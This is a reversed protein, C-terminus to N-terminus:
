IAATCELWPKHDDVTVAVRFYLTDDRLYQVNKVPDYGLQSHRIFNMKGWDKGVRADHWKILTVTATHHSKDELQNLLTITVSGLLPWKLWSDHKGQVVRVYVSIYTDKGNGYGNPFVKIAMHHGDSTYFAPSIFCENSERRVRYDVFRFTAAEGQKLVIERNEKLQSITDIAMHLHLKDEREHAALDKRKLKTDCGINEYKCAMVTYECDYKVHRDIHRRELTKSCRPNPCPTRKRGCTKDHVQTIYFYTGREKCWDDKEGYTCMYDRMPCDQVVHRHLDRRMFSNVRMWNNVCGEPCPVLAFPCRATHENLTGITGEWKCSRKAHSCKM